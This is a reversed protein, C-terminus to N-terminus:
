HRVKGNHGDKVKLMLVTKITLIPHTIIYGLSNTIEKFYNLKIKRLFLKLILFQVIIIRSKLLNVINRDLNNISLLDEFVKIKLVMREINKGKSLESNSNYNNLFGFEEVQYFGSLSHMISFIFHFDQAVFYNEIFKFEGIVEREFCYSGFGNFNRCIAELASWTPDPFPLPIRENMKVLYTGVRFVKYSPNALIAEYHLSLFNPLYEDDSDLFCIYSGSAQEMGYNRAASREAHQKQYYLIRPDDYKAMQIATDDTSGDDVVILEWDTYTQDLVSQITQDIVHARNYTPIIITFFPKM